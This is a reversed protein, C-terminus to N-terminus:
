ERFTLRNENIFHPANKTACFGKLGHKTAIPAHTVKPTWTLRFRTTLLEYAQKDRVTYLCNDHVIARVPHSLFRSEISSRVHVYDDLVTFMRKSIISKEAQSVASSM